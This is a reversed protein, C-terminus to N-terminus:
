CWDFLCCSGCEGFFKEIADVKELDCEVLVVPEKESSSTKSLKAAQVFACAM